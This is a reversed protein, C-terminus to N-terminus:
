CQHSTIHGQYEILLSDKLKRAEELRGQILNMLDQDDAIAAEMERTSLAVINDMAARLSEILQQKRACVERAPAEGANAMRSSNYGCGAAPEYLVFAASMATFHAFLELYTDPVRATM